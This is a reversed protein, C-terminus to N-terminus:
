MFEHYHHYIPWDAMVGRAIAYAKALNVNTTQLGGTSDSRQNLIVVCEVPWDDEMDSLTQQPNYGIISIRDEVSDDIVNIYLEVTDYDGGQGGQTVYFCGDLAAKLRAVIKATNWIPKNMQPPRDTAQILKIQEQTLMKRTEKTGDTCESKVFERIFSEFDKM